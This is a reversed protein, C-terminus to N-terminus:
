LIYHLQLIVLILFFVGPLWVPPQTSHDSHTQVIRGCSPCVIDICMFLAHWPFQTSLGVPESYSVDGSVTETELVPQHM